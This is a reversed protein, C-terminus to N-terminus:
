SAAVLQSEAYLCGGKGKGGVKRLTYVVDGGFYNQSWEDLEAIPTVTAVEYVRESGIRGGVNVKSVQDGIKFM